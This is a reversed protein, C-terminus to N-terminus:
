LPLGSPMARLEFQGDPTGLEIAAYPLRLTHALTQVVGLLAARPAAAADIRGLRAIVEYPDDREGYVLRGVRRQLYSRLPQVSLAVIGTGLLAVLGPRPGIARSLLWTTGLYIALVCVTLGGYLLSRRLIVEIDFLRYRLIAAGLALPCPVYFLLIYRESVFPREFFIGPLTALGVWAVSGFILTILVWRLRQRSAEDHSSRYSIAMLIPIAFPFIYSPLQSVQVMRGAAELRSDAAPLTLALYIGHLGIPLAYAALLAVRSPRLGTGPAVLAFHVLSGWVLALALEGVFDVLSPGDIALSVVQDGLLWAMVGCMLFAAVLLLAQAAPDAPRNYFVFVAVVLMLAILVLAGLNAAAFARLPFAGLRVVVDRERGHRVVTYTFRGGARLESKAVAGRDLAFALPQGNIRTVEDGARLGSATDLVYTLRFRNADWAANSLQVVSGDSPATVRVWVLLGAVLMLLISVIAVLRQM